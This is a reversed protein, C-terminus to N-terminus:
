IPQSSHLSNTESKSQLATQSTTQQRLHNSNLQQLKDLNLNYPMHLPLFSALQDRVPEAASDALPDAPPPPQFQTAPAQQPEPQIAPASSVPKRRPLNHRRPQLRQQPMHPQAPLQWQQQQLPPAYEQQVQLQQTNAKQLQAQESQPQQQQYQQPQPQQVHPQAGQQWQQQQPQQPEDYPQQVVSQQVQARRFEPQQIQPQQQQLQPGYPQTGQQWQRQQPQGGYPQQVLSQQSRPQQIQPQQQQQQQQQQVQLLAALLRAQAQADNGQQNGSAANAQTTQQLLTLLPALNALAAADLQPQATGQQSPGNRAGASNQMQQAQLQRRDNASIGAGVQSATRLGAALEPDMAAIAPMLPKVYKDIMENTKVLVDKSQRWTTKAVARAGDKNVIFEKSKGYAKKTANITAEKAQVATEKNWLRRSSSFLQPQGQIIPQGTSSQVNIYQPGNPGAQYFVMQPVPNPQAVTAQTYYQADPTVPPVQSPSFGTQHAGQTTFHSQVMMSAQIPESSTATQLSSGGQYNSVAETMYDSQNPLVHNSPSVPQMSIPVAYVMQVSQQSQVSAYSTSSSTVNGQATMTPGPTGCSRTMDAQAAVQYTEGVSSVSTHTAEAASVAAHVESVESQPSTFASYVHHQGASQETAAQGSQVLTSSQYQEYQGYQAWSGYLEAPATTSAQDLSDAALEAVDSGMNIHEHPLGREQERERGVTSEM